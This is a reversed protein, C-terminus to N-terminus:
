SQVKPMLCSITKRLRKLNLRRSLNELYEFGIVPRSKPVSYQAVTSSIAALDCLWSLSADPNMLKVTPLLIGNVLGVTQPDSVLRFLKRTEKAFPRFSLVVRECFECFKDFAEDDKGAVALSNISEQYTEVDSYYQESLPLLDQRIDRIDKWSLKKLLAKHLFVQPIALSVLQYGQDSSQTENKKLSMGSKAAMFFPDDTILRAHRASKVEDAIVSMYSKGVEQYGVIEGPALNVVLQEQLLLEVLNQELKEHLFWYWEVTKGILNDLSTIKLSDYFRTDGNWITLLDFMKESAHIREDDSIVTFDIVADGFIDHIKKYTELPYHTESRIQGSLYAKVYSMQSPPVITSVKGWCLILRKLLDESTIYMDPYYILEM